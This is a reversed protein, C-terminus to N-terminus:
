LRTVSLSRRWLDHNVRLVAEFTIQMQSITAEGDLASHAALAVAPCGSATCKALNCAQRRRALTTALLRVALRCGDRPSAYAQCALFLPILLTYKMELVHWYVWCEMQVEGAPGRSDGRSRHVNEQSPILPKRRQHM